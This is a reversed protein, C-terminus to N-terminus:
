ISVLPPAPQLTRSPLAPQHRPDEQAPSGTVLIRRVLARYQLKKHEEQQGEQQGEKQGGGGTAEVYAGM